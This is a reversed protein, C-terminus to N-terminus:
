FKRYVKGRNLRERLDTYTQGWTERDIEDFMAPLAFNAADRMDVFQAYFARHLDAIYSSEILASEDLKSDMVTVFGMDEQLEDRCDVSWSSHELLTADEPGYGNGYYDDVRRMLNDEHNLISTSVRGLDILPTDGDSKEDDDTNGPRHPRTGFADDPHVADRDIYRQVRLRTADTRYPRETDLPLGIM